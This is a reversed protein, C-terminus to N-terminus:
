LIGLISNQIEEDLSVEVSFNNYSVKIQPKSGQKIILEMDIPKKAYSRDQNIRKNLEVISTRYVKSGIDVNGRKILSIVSDSKTDQPFLLGKYDGNSLQFEIGDGKDINTRLKVYFNNRDADVISGILLGRNDPRDISMYSRGFDGLGLGKTFGRTFVQSLDEKEQDTISDKGSDLAKRYTKVVSAVYEKRKMRGEIKLSSIGADLLTDLNEVTNLDKPSLYHLKDLKEVLNGNGDVINYQMRCPQACTGRNGSRGGIFSSMLCQGSYGMCLAGHVFAELEINTNERINRIEQIPTERALIVRTFGLNELYKAGYLNNITMQTSGHIELDPFIKSILRAIGMDQVIIGDVDSEYLFRVYEIAQEMVSDDVLINLTVYIKVGHFHAYHIAGLMEDREFNSAHKRANLLKGGLYIANAGNEVAAVMAEINGAPALIEIEKTVLTM